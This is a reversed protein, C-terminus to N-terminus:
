IHILSLYLAAPFDSDYTEVYTVEAKYTPDAFNYLIINRSTNTILLVDKLKYFGPFKVSGRNSLKAPAYAVGSKIVDIVIDSILAVITSGFVEAPNSNDIVQTIATQISSFAINALIYNQILGKIFTHAFVEPLRDGDVQPVGNLWYYTANFYTQRNGGHKLDTIYGELVYSVDRRCKEANYTYYTYPAINNAANYAIYAITEEQVYRKNAELLAVTSPMLGSSQTNPLVPTPISSLGSNIANVTINFLTTTQAASGTEGANGSIVTQSASTNVKVYTTNTLINTTIKGLLWTQTIVEVQPSVIQLVGQVYYRNAIQYSGSNGGYTLDYIIGDLMYGVDRKCKIIRTSDYVYGYFPSGSNAVNATVQQQIYASIEEILFTKNATLLAVAKPYQGYAPPIAGPIYKYTSLQKKAM